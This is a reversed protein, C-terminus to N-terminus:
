PNYEENIQLGASFAKWRFLHYVLLRCESNSCLLGLDQGGCYLQELHKLISLYAFIRSNNKHTKNM